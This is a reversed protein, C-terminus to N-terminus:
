LPPLGEGDRIENVDVTEEPRHLSLGAKGGIIEVRVIREPRELDVNPRDIEQALAEVIEQTTHADHFRKNVVLRWRADEPIEPVLSRVAERMDDFENPVWTAVPLWHYTHLFRGPDEGCRQRLRRLIQRPEGDVHILFLGDVGSALFRYPVGLDELRAEVEGEALPRAEPRHTVLLNPEPM